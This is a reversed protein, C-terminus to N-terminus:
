TKGSELRAREASAGRRSVMGSAAMLAILQDTRGALMRAPSSVDFRLPQFLECLLRLVTIQVGKRSPCVARSISTAASRTRSEDYREGALRHPEKDTGANTRTPSIPHTDGVRLAPFSGCIACAVRLLVLLGASISNQRGDGGASIKDLVRRERHGHYGPDEGPVSAVRNQTEIFM